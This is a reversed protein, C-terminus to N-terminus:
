LHAILASVRNQELVPGIHLLDQEFVRSTQGLPFCQESFAYRTDTVTTPPFVVPFTTTTTFPTCPTSVPCFSPCHHSRSTSETKNCCGITTTFNGLNYNNIYTTGAQCVFSPPL